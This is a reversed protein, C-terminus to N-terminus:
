RVGAPRRSPRQRNIPRGISLTCSVLCPATTAPSLTAHDLDFSLLVVRSSRKARAPAHVSGLARPVARRSRRSMSRREAIPSATGRPRAVAPGCGSVLSDGLGM